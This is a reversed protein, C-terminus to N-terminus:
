ELRGKGVPSLLRREFRRRSESRRPPPPTFCNPIVCRVDPERTIEVSLSRMGPTLISEAVLTPAYLIVALVLPPLPNAM